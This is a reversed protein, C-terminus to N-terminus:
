ETGLDLKPVGVVVNEVGWRRHPAAVIRRCFEEGTRNEFGGIGVHHDRRVLTSCAAARKSGADGWKRTCRARRQRVAGIAACQRTGTIESGDPPIPFCPRRPSPPSWRRAVSRIESSRSPRGSAPPSARRLARLPPGRHTTPCASRLRRPMRSISRPQAPAYRRPAPTTTSPRSQRPNPAPRPRVRARDACVPAPLARHYRAARPIEGIDLRRDKTRARAPRYPRSRRSGGRYRRQTHAVPVVAAIAGRVGSPPPGLSADRRSGPRDRVRQPSRLHRAATAANRACPTPRPM